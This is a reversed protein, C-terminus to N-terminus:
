SEKALQRNAFKMFRRNFLVLKVQDFSIRTLYGLYSLRRDRIIAKLLLGFSSIWTGRGCRSSVAVKEGLGVRIGIDVFNMGDMLSAPVRAWYRPNIEILMLKGDSKRIRMDINAPGTYRGLECLTRGLKDVDPNEVFSTFSLERDREYFDTKMVSSAVVHGDVSFVNLDIDEGEFYEQLLAPFYKTREADPRKLFDQMAKRDEVFVLTSFGGAGLIPKILLPYDVGPNEPDIEIDTEAFISNPHSLDNKLCFQYFNRKDDLLEISEKSPIPAIKVHPSILDRHREVVTMCVISVPVLLDIDKQEVIDILERALEESRESVELKNKLDIFEHCMPHFQITKNREINGVVFIKYARNQGACYLTSRAEEESM